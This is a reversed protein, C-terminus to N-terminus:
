PNSAVPSLPLLPFFLRVTTGVGETSLLHVEGGHAEAVRRVFPLGLGSGNAKTTYFDDLAQDRTRANMGAGTDEVALLVGRGLKANGSSTRVTIAGRPKSEFANQILNELALTVLDRDLACDPLDPTLEARLIAGGDRAFSQVTVLGRVLENVQVPACRPELRGLRQYKDIASEM